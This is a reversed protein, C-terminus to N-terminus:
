VMILRTGEAAIRAWLGGTDSLISRCLKTFSVVTVKNADAAGLSRLLEKECEFSYQEPVLFIIGSRGEKVLEGIRKIMNYTKGSQAVGLVFRLM